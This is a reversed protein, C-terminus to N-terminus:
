MLGSQQLRKFIQQIIKKDHFLIEQFSSFNIQIKWNTGLM